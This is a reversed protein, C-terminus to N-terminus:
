KPQPVPTSSQSDCTDAAEPQEEPQEKKSFESQKTKSVQSRVVSLSQSWFVQARDMLSASVDIQEAANDMSFSGDANVPSTDDAQAERAEKADKAKEAETAEDIVEMMATTDNAEAAEEHTRTEPAIEESARRSDM